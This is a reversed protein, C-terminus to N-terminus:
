HWSCPSHGGWSGPADESPHLERCISFLDQEGGHCVQQVIRYFLLLRLLVLIQILQERYIQLMLWACSDPEGMQVDRLRCYFFNVQDM